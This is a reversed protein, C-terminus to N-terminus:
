HLIAEDGLCLQAFGEVVVLGTPPAQPTTKDLETVVRLVVDRDDQRALVSYGCDIGGVIFDFLLDYVEEGVLGRVLVLGYREVALPRRQRYRHDVRDVDDRKIFQPEHGAEANVGLDSRFRLDPFRDGPVVAWRSVPRQVVCELVQVVCQRVVDIRSSFSSISRLVSAWFDSSVGVSRRTLATRSFATLRPALSMWM